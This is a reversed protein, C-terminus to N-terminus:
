KSLNEFKMKKTKGSAKEVVCQEGDVVSKIIGTEYKTGVKYMVSDGTQFYSQTDPTHKAMVKITQMSFIGGTITTLLADWFRFSTRIQCPEDSPTAVSTRGLPILGWFLYCQKGKSYKYEQGQTEKFNSISTRTSMCSALIFVSMLMIFCKKM